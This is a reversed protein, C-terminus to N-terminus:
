RRRAIVLLKNGRGARRFIAELAPWTRELVRGKKSHMVAFERQMKARVTTQRELHVIDVGVADLLASIGAETLYVKHEWYYMPGTLDVRGRTQKNLWLLLTRIPFGGDPTEFLLAGGRRVKPVVSALMEKPEGVHEIVDWMTLADFSGDSVSVGLEEAAHVRLGRRRAEAVARASVDSGVAKLGQSVALELFNGIGCGIDLVSELKGVESRARDIMYQYRSDFGRRVAEDSYVDLKYSEWKYRSESDSPEASIDVFFQSHCHGCCLLSYRGETTLGTKKTDLRACAPCRNRGDMWDSYTM